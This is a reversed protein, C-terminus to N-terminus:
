KKEIERKFNKEKEKKFDEKKKEEKKYNGEIRNVSEYNRERFCYSFANNKNIFEQRRKYTM